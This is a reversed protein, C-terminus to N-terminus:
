EASGAWLYPSRKKIGCAIHITEGVPDIVVRTLKMAALRGALDGFLEGEM